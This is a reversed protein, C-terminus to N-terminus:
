NTGKAAVKGGATMLAMMAEEAKDNEEARERARAYNLQTAARMGQVAVDLMAAADMDNPGEASAIIVELVRDGTEVRQTLTAVVRGTKKYVGRKISYSM